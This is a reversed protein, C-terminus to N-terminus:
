AHAMVFTMRRIEVPLQNLGSFKLARLTCRLASALV